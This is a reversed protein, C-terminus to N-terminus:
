LYASSPYVERLKQRVEDLEQRAALHAGPSALKVLGPTNVERTLEKARTELNRIYEARDFDDPLDGSASLSTLPYRFGGGGTPRSMLSRVAARLDDLAEMIQVNTQAVVDGSARAAEFQHATRLPTEIAEPNKLASAVFAKLSEQAKELREPNTTDYPLIRMDKIDFPPRESSEQIHVTPKRYGHAIALEYFVNANAGTIDAIVLDAELISQVIRPTIAGPNTDDDARLVEFDPSLAKKILYKLTTDAKEREPSGEPGIPSVM